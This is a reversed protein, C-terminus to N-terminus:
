SYMMGKLCTKKNKLTLAVAQQQRIKNRMGHVLLFSKNKERKFKDIEISSISILVNVRHRLKM